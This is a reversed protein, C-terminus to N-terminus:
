IEDRVEAITKPMSKRALLNGKFSTFMPEMHLPAIDNFQLAENFSYRKM